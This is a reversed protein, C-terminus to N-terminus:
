QATAGIVQPCYSSGFAKVGTHNPNEIALLTQNLLQPRTLSGTFRHGGDPDEGIFTPLGHGSSSPLTVSSNAHGVLAGDVFLTISSKRNKGITLASIHRNFYASVTINHCKGASLPGSVIREGDVELVVGEDTTYGLYFLGEQSAITQLNGGGADTEAPTIGIGFTFPGLGPSRQLDDGTLVGHGQKSSSTFKTELISSTDRWQIFQDRLREVIAPEREALNSHGTAEESLDYLFEEGAMNRYYRWRDANLVSYEFRSQWFLDRQVSAVDPTVASLSVGDLGPPVEFGVLEALTPYIDMISLTSANVQGAAFKAPWRIILPTRVGGEFYTAKKGFFPFNNDLQRNTGGNDSALVVITNQLQGSSELADLIRGVAVDLQAMLARYQGAPTQPFRASFEASPQIPTHPALFAHYIFWPTQRDQDTILTATHEALLDTLHGQYQRREGQTDQLWPDFYTPRSYPQEESTEQMLWQNLYGLSTDFGQATPWAMETSFGVHWKGVHHTTYGNEQLKEPLTTLHPPIGRGDPRFGSRAPYRGTLLAVRSASCTSETYFRTFRTGQEALANMRETPIEANGNNIGLDNFGMDDTLLLLINPRKILKEPATQAAHEAPVVVRDQNRIAYVLVAVALLGIALWKLRQM